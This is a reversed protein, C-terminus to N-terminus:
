EGDTARELIWEDLLKRYIHYVPKGEKTAIYDGFPYVKQELGRRVTEVSISVGLARLVETAETVTITEIVM